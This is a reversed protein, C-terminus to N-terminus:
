FVKVLHFLLRRLFRLDLSLIDTDYLGLIITKLREHLTDWGRIEVVKVLSAELKTLPLRSLNNSAVLM